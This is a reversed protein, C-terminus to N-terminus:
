DGLGCWEVHFDEGIRVIWDPENRDFQYRLICKGPVLFPYRIDIGILQLRDAVQDPPLMNRLVELQQPSPDSGPPLWSRLVEDDELEHRIAEFIEQVGIPYWAEIERYLERQHQPVSGNVISALISVRNRTPGFERKFSAWAGEGGGFLIAGDGLVPDTIRETAVPQSGENNPSRRGDM